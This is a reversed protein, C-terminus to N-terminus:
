TFMTSNVILMYHFKLMVLLRPFKMIGTIADTAQLGKNSGKRYVEKRLNDYVSKSNDSLFNIDLVNNLAYKM